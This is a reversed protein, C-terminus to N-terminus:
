ETPIAELVGTLHSNLMEYGASNLHLLDHAYDPNTQGSEDALLEFTDFLIVNEASLQHLFSNIEDVAVAVDDNWVVSRRLSVEGM